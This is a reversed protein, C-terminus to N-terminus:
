ENIKLMHTVRTCSKEELFIIFSEYVKSYYCIYLHTLKWINYTPFTYMKENKSLGISKSVFKNFVTYITKNAFKFNISKNVLEDVFIIQKRM